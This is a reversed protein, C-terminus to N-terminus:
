GDETAIKTTGKYLRNKETQKFFQVMTQSSWDILCQGVLIPPFFVMDAKCFNDTSVGAMFPYAITFSMLLLRKKITPMQLLLTSRM